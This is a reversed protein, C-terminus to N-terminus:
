VYTAWTILFIQWILQLLISIPFQADPMPCRADEGKYFQSYPM